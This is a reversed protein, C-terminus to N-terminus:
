CVRGVAMDRMTHPTHTHPAHRVKALDTEFSELLNEHKSKQRQYYENFAEFSPPVQRYQENLHAVAVELAQVRGVV